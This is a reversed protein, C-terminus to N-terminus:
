RAELLSEEYTADARFGLKAYCAIAPINDAKVNLGIRTIGLDDILHRALAATVATAFGRGRHDPHTAINGLAAAGRDASVVHVGAVAVLRMSDRIGFYCGTEVMWPDFWNGPYSAAYFRDLDFLDEPTLAVAGVTDVGRLASREELFMRLHEGHPTMYFASILPTGVGPSTHAYIRRPLRPAIGRLLDVM